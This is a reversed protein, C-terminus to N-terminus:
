QFAGSLQFYGLGLGVQVPPVSSGRPKTRAGDVVWWVAGGAVLIGGAIFSINSVTAFTGGKDRLEISRQQVPEATAASKRSLAMLGFVTGGVLGVGGAGM